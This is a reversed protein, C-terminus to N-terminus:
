DALWSFGHHEYCKPCGELPDVVKTPFAGRRSCTVIFYNASWDGSEAVVRESGCPCPASALAKAREHAERRREYFKDPTLGRPWEVRTEQHQCGLVRITGPVIYYNDDYDKGVRPTGCHPCPKEEVINFCTTTNM